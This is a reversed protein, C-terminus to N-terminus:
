LACERCVYKGPLDPDDTVGIIEDQNYMANCNACRGPFRATFWAKVLVADHRPTGAAIGKCHACMSRPLDSFECVPDDDVVTRTV